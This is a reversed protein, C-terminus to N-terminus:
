KYTLTLKKCNKEVLVGMMIGNVPFITLKSNECSASWKKSFSNNLIIIGSGDVMLEYGYDKKENSIINGKFPNFISINEPLDDKAIIAENKNLSLIEKYFKSSKYSFKSIKIKSPSFYMDWPDRIEYILLNKSLRLNNIFKPYINSLYKKNSVLFENEHDYYLINDNKQVNNSIIFKVNAIELAKIHIKSLNNPIDIRHTHFPKSNDKMLAYRMYFNKRISVNTAMGDFTNLGYFVPIQSPPSYATTVVRNKKNIKQLDSLTKYYKKSHFSGQDDMDKLAININWAAALSSLIILYICIFKRSVKKTIDTFLIMFVLFIFVIYLQHILSWRFSEFLPIKIFKSIIQIILPIVVLYFNLFCIKKLHIKKLGFLLLLSFILLLFHPPRRFFAYLNYIYDRIINYLNFDSKLNFRASEELSNFLNYLPESWNLLFFSLFIILYPLHYKFKKFTQNEQLLFIGLFCYFFLPVFIFFNCSIVSGFIYLLRFLIQHKSKIFFVPYILIYFALSLGLGGVAWYYILYSSFCFFIALYFSILKENKFTKNFTCYIGIFILLLGTLKYILNSIWQPFVKILTGYFSFFQNVPFLIQETGIGGLVGHIFTQNLSTNNKLWWWTVQGHYEDYGGIASGEGAFWFPFLFIFIFTSSFIFVYKTNNTLKQNTWYDVIYFCCFITFFFIIIFPKM